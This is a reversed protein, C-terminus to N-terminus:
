AAGVWSDQPRRVRCFSVLINRAKPRHSNPTGIQSIMMMTSNMRQVPVIVGGTEDLRPRQGRRNNKRANL